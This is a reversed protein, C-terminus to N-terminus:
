LRLFAKKPQTNFICSHTLSVIFIGEKHRHAQPKGDSSTLTAPFYFYCVSGFM